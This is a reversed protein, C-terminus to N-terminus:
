AAFLFLHLKILGAILSPNYQLFCISTHTYASQDDVTLDHWAPVPTWKLVRFQMILVIAHLSCSLVWPTLRVM